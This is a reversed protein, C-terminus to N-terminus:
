ARKAIYDDKKQSGLSSGLWFGSLSGAIGSLVATVTLTKVDESWTQGGLGLVVASVVLYVLPLLALSMIMAPNMYWAVQDPSYAQKRAEAIGGGVELLMPMIGDVARRAADLAEPSEQMREVAAQLNPSQTVEVLKEAVITAAAVNRQAVESGPKFVQALAPILSALTPALATFIPILPVAMADEQPAQPLGSVYQDGYNETKLSDPDFEEGGWAKFVMRAEELTMTPQGYPSFPLSAWEKSCKRLADELFGDKVDQLAKRGHILAVAAEDQVRPSFDEFHYKDVLGNWTKELFQYAGAATSTWKGATIAKRPHEWPPADFLGGGYMTRYAVDKQSTEGQRILRLFARVNADQLAEQFLERM